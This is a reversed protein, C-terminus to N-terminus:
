EPVVSEYIGPCSHQIWAREVGQLANNVSWDNGTRLIIRSSIGAVWKDPPIKGEYRIKLCLVKDVGNTEEYPLVTGEGMVEIQIDRNNEPGYYRSIIEDRVSEPLLANQQSNGGGTCGTLLLLWFLVTLLITAKM